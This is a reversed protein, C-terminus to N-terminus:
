VYVCVSYSSVNCDISAVIFISITWYKILRTAIFLKIYGDIFHIHLKKNRLIDASLWWCTIWNLSIGYFTRQYHHTHYVLINIVAVRCDTWWPVAATDKVDFSSFTGAAESRLLNHLRRRCINEKSRHCWQRRTHSNRCNMGEDCEGGVLGSATGTTFGGAPTGQEHQYEGVCVSFKAEPLPTEARGITLDPARSEDTCGVGRYLIAMGFLKRSAIKVRSEIISQRQLDPPQLVPLRSQTLVCSLSHLTVCRPELASIVAM